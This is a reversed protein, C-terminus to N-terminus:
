CTTCSKHSKISRASLPTVTGPTAGDGAAGQLTVVCGRPFFPPLLSFYKFRKYLYLPLSYLVVLPSSIIHLPLSSRFSPFHCTDHTLAPSFASLRAHIHMCIDHLDILPELCRPFPRHLHPLSVAWSIYLLDTVRALPGSIRNLRRGSCALNDRADNM